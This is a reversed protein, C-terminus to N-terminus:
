SLDIAADYIRYFYFLSMIITVSALLVDQYLVSPASRVTDRLMPSSKVSVRYGFFEVQEPNQNLAPTSTM